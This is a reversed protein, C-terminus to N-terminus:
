MESVQPLPVAPENSYDHKFTDAKQGSHITWARGTSTDFEIIEGDDMTLFRYRDAIEQADRVSSMRWLVVVTVAYLLFRLYNM